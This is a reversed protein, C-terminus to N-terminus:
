NVRIDYPTYPYTYYGPDYPNTRQRTEPGVYTPAYVNPTSHLMYRFPTIWVYDEQLQFVPYTYDIRGLPRTQRGSVSATLTIMRGLAYVAPDLPQDTLVLFRGGSGDINVPEGWRDLKWRYIELTSGQREVDLGLIVGGLLLTKGQYVAPDQKVAAYVADPDVASRAQPSLVHSCGTLGALLLLLLLFKPM